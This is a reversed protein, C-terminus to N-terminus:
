EGASLDITQRTGNPYVVVVAPLNQPGIVTTTLGDALELVAGMPDGPFAIPADAPVCQRLMLGLMPHAAMLSSLGTPVNHLVHPKGDDAVDGAAFQALAEAQLDELAEGLAGALGESVGASALADRIAASGAVQPAEGHDMTESM